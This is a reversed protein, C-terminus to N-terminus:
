EPEYSHDCEECEGNCDNTGEMIEPVDDCWMGYAECFLEYPFYTM